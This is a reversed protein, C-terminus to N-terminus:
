GNNGSVDRFTNYTSRYFGGESHVLCLHIYMEVLLCFQDEASTAYLSAEGTRVLPLPTLWLRFSQYCCFFKSCLGSSFSCFLSFRFGHLHPHLLYM